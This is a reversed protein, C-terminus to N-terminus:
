LGPAKRDEPTLKALAAEKAKQVMWSRYFALKIVGGAGRRVLNTIGTRKFEGM